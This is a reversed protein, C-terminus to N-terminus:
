VLQPSCAVSSIESIFSRLGSFALREETSLWIAHCVSFHTIVLVLVKM